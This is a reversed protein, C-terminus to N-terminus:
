EEKKLMLKLIRQKLILIYHEMVDAQERELKTKDEPNEEIYRMLRDKKIILEELENLLRPQYSHNEKM